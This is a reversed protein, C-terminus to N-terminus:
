RLQLKTGPGNQEEYCGIDIAKGRVRPNGLLDVASSNPARWGANRCPSHASLTFDGKAANRFRPDGVLPVGTTSYGFAASSWVNTAKAPVANFDPNAVGNGTATNGYIITNVISGNSYDNYFAPDRGTNATITCSRMHGTMRAGGAGASCTNHAVLTNEVVGSGSVWLGGGICIDSSISNNTVVCGTMLGGSVVAGGGYCRINTTNDNGRVICNSVVGGAIYVGAGCEGLNLGYRGNQIAFGAVFAKTHNVHVVRHSKGGDLITVEPGDRSLLTFGEDLRITRTTPYTGRAVTVISGGRAWDVADLVNTAATAWTQYPPTPNACASDVFLRAPRIRFLAPKVESYVKAGDLYIACGVSYEGPALSLTAPSGTADSAGPGPEVGSVSWYCVADALNFGVATASLVVEGADEDLEFGFSASVQSQDYEFCGIDMAAGSVRDNGDLDTAVTAVGWAADLCPSSPTLRYNGGDFSAFFPDGSLSGGTTDTGIAVASFVNTLKPMSGSVVWNPAGSSADSLVRNGYVITDICRAKSNDFCIGGAKNAENAVITCNRVLGDNIFVGGAGCSAGGVNNTILCHELVAKAGCVGAGAGAYGGITNNAILCRSVTGYAIHVGAGRCWSGATNNSIICDRVLGGGAVRLGRGAELNDNSGNGGGGAITVGEVTANTTVSMVRFTKSVGDIVTAQAGGTSTLTITKDITLTKLLPYIGPAFLITDGEFAVELAHKPQFFANDASAGTPATRAEGAALPAVFWTVPDQATRVREYNWTLVFPQAYNLSVANGSGTTETGNTYSITYGTCNWVARGSADAVSATTEFALPDGVSAAHPGCAPDPAGVEATRNVVFCDTMVSPGAVLPTTTASAFFAGTVTDYLQAVGDKLCPLFERKMVVAGKEREYVRFSHLRVKAYSGLFDTYAYRHFCFLQIKGSTGDGITIGGALFTSHGIAATAIAVDNSYVTVNFNGAELTYTVGAALGGLGFAALDYDQTAAGKAAWRFNFSPQGLRGSRFLYGEASVDTPTFVAQVFTDGTSRYDTLVRQAGTAEVYELFADPLDRASATAALLAAVAICFSSHFTVLSSHRTVFEPQRSDSTSHRRM